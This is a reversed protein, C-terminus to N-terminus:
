EVPCSTNRPNRWVNRVRVLMSLIPWSPTVFSPFTSVDSTDVHRVHGRTQFTHSAPAPAPAVHPSVGVHGSPVLLAEVAKGPRAGSQRLMKTANELKRLDVALSPFGYSQILVVYLSLELSWLDTKCHLNSPFDYFLINITFNCHWLGFVDYRCVTM